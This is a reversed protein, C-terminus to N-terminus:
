LMSLDNSYKECYPRWSAEICSQVAILLSLITSKSLKSIPLLDRILVFLFKLGLRVLEFSKAHEHYSSTIQGVLLDAKAKSEIKSVHIAFAPLFVMYVIMLLVVVVATSIWTQSYCKELPDARLNATKDPQPICNFVQFMSSLLQLSFVNTIFLVHSLLKFRGAKSPLNKNKMSQSIFLIIFFIIPAIIKLITFGYFNHSVDCGIGFYGIDFNL